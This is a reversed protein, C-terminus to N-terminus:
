CEKDSTPPWKLYRLQFNGTHSIFKEKTGFYILKTFDDSFKPCFAMFENPNLCQMYVGETPIKKKDSVPERVYHLKTDRNLCSAM